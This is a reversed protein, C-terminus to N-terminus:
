NARSIKFFYALPPALNQNSIFLFNHRGKFLYAEFNKMVKWPVTVQGDEERFWQLQWLAILLYYVLIIWQLTKVRKM